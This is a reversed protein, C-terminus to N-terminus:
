IRRQNGIFEKTKLVFSIELSLFSESIKEIGGMSVAMSEFSNEQLRPDFVGGSTQNVVDIVKEALYLIGKNTGTDFYLNKAKEDDLREVITVSVTIDAVKRFQGSYSESTGSELVIILIPCDISYDVNQRKGVYVDKVDELIKTPAIEARLRNEFENLVNVYVGM